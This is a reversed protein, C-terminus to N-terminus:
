RPFGSSIISVGLLIHTYKSYKPILKACGLHKVGGLVDPGCVIHRSGVSTSTQWLQKEHMVKQYLSESPRVMTMSWAPVMSIWEVRRFGIIRPRNTYPGHSGHATKRLNWIACAFLGLLPPLKGLFLRSTIHQLAAHLRVKCWFDSSEPNMIGSQQFNHSVDHFPQFIYQLTAFLHLKTPKWINQSSSPRWFPMRTWGSAFGFWIWVGCASGWDFWIENFWRKPKAVPSWIKRKM